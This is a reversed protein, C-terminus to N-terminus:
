GATTFTRDPSQFTGAPTTVTVAYHYTTGPRLNAFPRTYARGGTTAAGPLLVGPAKAYDTTTGLRVLTSTVPQGHTDVVANITAATSTLPDVDGITVDPAPSAATAFTQDATTFSGAANTVTVRYHYTTGPALQTPLSRSLVRAAAPGTAYLAASRPYDGEATGWEVVGSVPSGHTDVTVGLTAGTPTLDTAPDVTVDEAAPGLPATTFSAPASYDYTGDVTPYPRLKVAYSSRPDLGALTAQVPGGGVVTEKPTVAWTSTGSKRYLFQVATAGAFVRAHVTAGTASVGTTPALVSRLGTVTPGAVRHSLVGATTQTASLRHVGPGPTWTTTWTGQSTNSASITGGIQTAGDYLRVAANRVAAGSITVPTGALVTTEGAVNLTVDRTLLTITIGSTDDSTQGDSTQRFALMANNSGVVMRVATGTFDFHGDADATGSALVENEHYPDVVEITAGPLGTGTFRVPNAWGEAHTPSTITPPDIAGTGVVMVDDSFGSTMGGVSQYAYVLNPGHVAPFTIQWAGTDGDAYVAQQFAGEVYVAVYAGPWTTGSVTVDEGARVTEPTDLHLVPPGIPVTVLVPASEPGPAGAGARQTLAVTYSGPPLTATFDFAGGGDATGTGLVASEGARHVDVTAGPAGTGTFRVPEGLAPSAGWTPATVVPAPLVVTITRTVAATTVGNMTQTVSLTHSGPALAAVSLSWAFYGESTGATTTGLLTGHEDRVTVTADHVARGRVTFPPSLTAGAEPASIEPADLGTLHVAPSVLSRLGSPAIAYAEVYNDGSLMPITASWTGAETTAVTDVITNNRRVEVTTGPDSLGAFTVPDGALVTTGGDPVITPASPYVMVFLLGPIAQRDSAGEGDVRQQWGLYYGGADVRFSFDFHGDADADGTGLLPGAYGSFFDVHANPQATGTVHIRGDRFTTSPAPSTVAPPAPQAQAVAATLALWCTALTAITMLRRM